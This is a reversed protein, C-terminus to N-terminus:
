SSHSFKFYKLIDPVLACPTQDAIDSSMPFSKKVTKQSLILDKQPRFPLFITALDTWLGSLTVFRFGQVYKKM